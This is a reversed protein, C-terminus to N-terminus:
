STLMLEVSSNIELVDRLMKCSLFPRGTLFM